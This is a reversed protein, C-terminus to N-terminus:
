FAHGSPATTGSNNTSLFGRTIQEGLRAAEIMLGAKAIQKIMPVRNVFPVKGSAVLYNATIMVAEDAYQGFPVRQTVPDLAMSMRERIAGYAMAGVAQGALGTILQKAKRRRPSAKKYSRRSKRRKAMAYVKTKKTTSKTSSGRWSSAAQKFTKGKAMERKMHINYKSLKRAMM